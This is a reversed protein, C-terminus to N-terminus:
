EGLHSLKVTTKMITYDYDRHFNESEFKDLATNANNISYYPGGVLIDPRNPRQCVIYYVEFDM